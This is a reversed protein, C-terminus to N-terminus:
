ARLAISGLLDGSAAYFSFTVETGEANPSIGCTSYDGPGIGLDAEATPVLAWVTRQDIM